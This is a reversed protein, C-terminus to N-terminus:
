LSVSVDRKPCERFIRAPCTRCIDEDLLAIIKKLAENKSEFVHDRGIKDMYGSREFMEHTKTSLNTIFLDGGQKQRAEREHLVQFLVPLYM